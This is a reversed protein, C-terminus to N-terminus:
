AAPNSGTDGGGASLGVGYRELRRYLTKRDLGLIRSAMTKNGAVAELVRLIYRREVEELPVLETPDEGAVLVHSRTYTRIKEPLDEVALKDWSTLAVAREVCNALERVNGPWSYALLKEAAPASIGVVKKGSRLAVRELLHQALLLVDSGRARLPPLEVTIVNIRFLLDERFRGDEVASELDRNTAAIIRTEFPVEQEGGVPRVKREQIARLLKPQLGLPMEGIEDLFLTGGRAQLFLGQRKEKADTFAGKAHGFLETELLSEPMAACNVAIFPGDPTRGRKHLAKAVLEKGTGSEGTILISADAKAVRELLEFLKKMAPSQGILEDFRAAEGAAKRLRKVEERLTRHQIARQLTMVLTELEFPKTIFDYAGARIAAIATDMSGFATVVVVPLDPRKEAVKGCLTTGNMSPMNLDTVVVDFDDRGVADLAEAGSLVSRAQFGRRNLSSQLLDAMSKEDEVVLV